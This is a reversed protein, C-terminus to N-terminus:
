DDAEPAAARVVMVARRAERIIREAVGGLEWEWSASAGHDTLVILDVEEAQALALISQAAPGSDVRMKVGPETAWMRHRLQHLYIEIQSRIQPMLSAVQAPHVTRAISPTVRVLVVDARLHERMALAPELSSEATMSGDLPLLLRKFKLPQLADHRVVLTACPARRLLKLAVSGYRWRGPGSHGHSAIVILDVAQERVYDIIAAAPRGLAVDARGAVAGSKLISLGRLYNQALRRQRTEADPSDLELRVFPALYRLPTVVRLLLLEAALAEALRAAPALAMEGLHSGDLPVLIRKFM